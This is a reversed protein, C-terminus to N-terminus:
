LSPRLPSLLLRFVSLSLSSLLPSSSLSLSSCFQYYYVFLSISLFPLPFPCSFSPSLSSLFLSLFLLRSAVARSPSVLYVSISRVLPLSSSSLLFSFIFCSFYSVDSFFLFFLEFILECELVHWFIDLQGGRGLWYYVQFHEWKLKLGKTIADRIVRELADLILTM